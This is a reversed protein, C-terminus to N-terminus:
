PGHLHREQVKHQAPAHKCAHGPMPECCCGDHLTLAPAHRLACSRSTHCMMAGGQGSLMSGVLMCQQTRMPPVDPSGNAIHSHTAVALVQTVGPPASRASVVTSTQHGWARDVTCMNPNATAHLRLV